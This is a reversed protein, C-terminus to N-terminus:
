RGRPWSGGEWGGLVGGARVRGADDLAAVVVNLKLVCTAARYTRDVVRIRYFTSSLRTRAEDATFMRGNYTHLATPRGEAGWLSLPAGRKKRTGGQAFEGSSPFTSLWM